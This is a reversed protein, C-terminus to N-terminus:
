VCVCVCERASLAVICPRAPFLLIQFFFMGITWSLSLVSSYMSCFLLRFELIWYICGLGM